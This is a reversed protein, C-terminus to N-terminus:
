FIDCCCCSFYSVITDKVIRNRERKRRISTMNPKPANPAVGPGGTTIPTTAPKIDKERSLYDGFSNTGKQLNRRRADIAGTGFDAAGPQDFMRKRLTANDVDGFTKGAQEAIQKWRAKAERIMRETLQDAVRFNGEKDAQHALRILDQIDM